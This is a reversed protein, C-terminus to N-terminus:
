GASSHFFLNRNNFNTLSYYKTIDAQPTIIYTYTNTKMWPEQNM